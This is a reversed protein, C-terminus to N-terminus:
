RKRVIRRLMEQQGYDVTDRCDREVTGFPLIRQGELAIAFEGIEKASAREIIRDLGDDHCAGTGIERGAAIHELDDTREHLHVGLRQGRKRPHGAVEDLRHPSARLRDNGRDLTDAGARARDDGHRRVHPKRRAPGLDCEEEVLHAKSTTVHAGARDQRPDDSLGAGGLQEVVPRNM